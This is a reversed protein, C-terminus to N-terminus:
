KGLKKRNKAEKKRIERIARSLEKYGNIISQNAESIYRRGRVFQSIDSNGSIGSFYKKALEYKEKAESIKNNFRSLLSEIETTDEGKEKIEKIRASIKGALKEAKNLTAAFRAIWVEAIIKKVEIRRKSWYQRVEKAINGMNTTSANNIKEKESELWSINGNIESNIEGKQKESLVKNASVWERMSEFKKMIVEVIRELLQKAKEKVIKRAVPSKLKKYKLRAKLYNQRVNKYSRIENLYQIRAKRYRYKLNNLKRAKEASFLKIKQSQKATDNGQGNKAGLAMSYASFPFVFAVISFLLIIGALKNKQM